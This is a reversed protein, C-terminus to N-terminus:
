RSELSNLYAIAEATTYRKEGSKLQARVEEASFQPEWYEYKRLGEPIFRGLVRGSGDCFELPEALSHLKSLLTGDVVIRNM